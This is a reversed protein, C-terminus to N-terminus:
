VLLLVMSFRLYEVIQRSEVNHQLALTCYNRTILSFIEFIFEAIYLQSPENIRFFIVWFDVM